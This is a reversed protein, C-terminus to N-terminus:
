CRGKKATNKNQSDIKKEFEKQRKIRQADHACTCDHENRPHWKNMKCQWDGKKTHTRRELDEPKFIGVLINSVTNIFRGEIWVFRDVKNNQLDSAFAEAKEEDLWIEIDGTFVLVLRKIDIENKQDTM